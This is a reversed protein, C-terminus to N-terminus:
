VNYFFNFTIPPTSYNASLIRSAVFSNVAETHHIGDWSMHRSSEECVTGNNYCAKLSNEFGHITYNTILDYKIMFVDVYVITANKMHSRLEECLADHANTVLIYPLCGLPGTNHVWFNKGGSQYISWIAFRIEEIFIPINGIVQLYPLTSFQATLDNQGVDITYLADAFGDKGVLNVHGSIRSVLDLYRPSRSRFLLFQNLQVGLNFPQDRPITAAGSVAFNAGNSFNPGLSELNPSLISTNLNEGMKSKICIEVFYGALQCPKPDVDHFFARRNPLTVDIGLGALWGATDSNSDGFNFIVPKRKCSSAASSPLGLCLGFMVAYCRLARLSPVCYGGGRKKEM